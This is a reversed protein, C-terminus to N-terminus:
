PTPFFANSRGTVHYYLLAFAEGVSNRASVEPADRAPFGIVNFGAQRFAGIARPMHLGSTILIWPAKSENGILARTFMANEWTNTAQTEIVIRSRSIGAAVLMNRGDVAEQFAGSVVIRANGFRAAVPVATAIRASKMVTNHETSHYELDGGLIIIGCVGAPLIPESPFREELMQGLALAIPENLVIAVLTLCGSIAVIRGLLKL